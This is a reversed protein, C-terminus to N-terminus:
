KSGHRPFIMLFEKKNGCFIRFLSFSQKNSKEFQHRFQQNIKDVHHYIGIRGPISAPGSAKNQSKTAALLRWNTFDRFSNWSPRWDEIVLTVVDSSSVTFAQRATHFTRNVFFVFDFM